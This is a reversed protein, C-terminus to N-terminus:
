DTDTGAVFERFWPMEFNGPEVIFNSQRAPDNAIDASPILERVHQFGWRNFEPARWNALTVQGGPEPPFGQMLGTMTPKDYRRWKGDRGGCSVRMAMLTPSRSGSPLSMSLVSNSEAVCHAVAGLSTFTPSATFPLFTAM